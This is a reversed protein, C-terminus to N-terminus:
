GEESVTVSPAGLASVIIPKEYPFFRDLLSSVQMLDRTAQGPRSGGFLLRVGIADVHIGEQILRDLFTLPNMSGKRHGGHEGFPQTIDIMTRAGRRTQKVILSSMRVLDLAQETTFEFNENTNLGSALNWMGVSPAYRQVIREVHDYTLDRCTDYDHQWVYAWDPVASRSFDVLPGAVIPKKNAKAWTMWRDTNDWRYNGEEQELRRWTLPIGVVDFEREVLDRLPQADREPWIRVGLTSSSAARNAFRRHLLIDAHAMALRETADIAHVLSQRAMEDAKIPDLATWAKTFLRRAEEWQQMAPHNLSLDFMQWEESKAIFWKIRHRALELSLLYPETRDPLLCTQLVMTGMRGADYLLALGAADSGRKRGEIVGGTFQVDGRIPLDDTGVLYAHHLPWRDALGRDDYVAFRLM